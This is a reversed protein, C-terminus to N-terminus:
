NFANRNVRHDDDLTEQIAEFVKSMFEHKNFDSTKLLVVILKIFSEIYRYDLRDNPRKEGNNGVLAKEISTVVMVKCFIAMMEADRFIDMKTLNNFFM